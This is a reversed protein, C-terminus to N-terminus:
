FPPQALHDATTEELRLRETRRHTVHGCTRPLRENLPPERPDRQLRASQKQLLQPANIDKFKFESSGFTRAPSPFPFHYPVDYPFHLSMMIACAERQM